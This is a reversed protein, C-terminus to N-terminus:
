SEARRRGRLTAVLRRYGLLYLGAYLLLAGLCLEWLGIGLDGTTLNGFAALEAATGVLALVGSGVATLVLALVEVFSETLLEDV